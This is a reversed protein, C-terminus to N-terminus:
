SGKPEVKDGKASLVYWEAGFQDLNEGKTDGPKADSVYLYLPHGNYTVQTKGDARRSTGLLSAMVGSGAKPKGSTTLPPWVSACAGSCTSKPGKDKQFLYLTRGKQDVLVKGLKTGTSRLDVTAAAASSTSQKSVQYGGGSGGGNGGGCGAIALVAATASAAFAARGLDARSVARTRPDRSFTTRLASM